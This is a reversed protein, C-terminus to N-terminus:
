FDEATAGYPPDLLGIRAARQASIPEFPASTLRRATRTGVRRPLLYTWYESGDLGGMHPYYPDLVIGERRRVAGRHCLAVRHHRHRAGRRQDRQPQAVIRHGPRRLREVAAPDSARAVLARELVEVSADARKSM